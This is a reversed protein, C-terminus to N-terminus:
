AKDKSRRPWLTYSFSILFDVALVLSWVRMVPMLDSTRDEAGALRAIGYLIAGGIAWALLHRFWMQREHRAHEEGYRKQPRAGGRTWYAFRVDAWRIMPGGFAISAGIYVAALGHSLRAEAGGQLDIVTAALLIVDVVPSCILLAAGLRKRGWVYRCALGALVFIWFAIECGIILGLM